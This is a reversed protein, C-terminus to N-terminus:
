NPVSRCAASWTPSALIWGGEALHQSTQKEPGDRASRSAPVLLQGSAPRPVWGLVMMTGFDKVPGVDSIWLSGFGAVDTMIAGVVPWTLLISATQM